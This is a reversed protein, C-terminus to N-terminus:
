EESFEVLMHRYCTFLNSKSVYGVYKGEDIVPLNWAGSTEFKEMVKDMSEDSSVYVSPLHMLNRVYVNDYMEENFMIHRINDLSVIGLLASDNDVVPFSNRKSLAVVKILERLSMDPLITTFDREILKDLRMLRLVWFPQKKRQKNYWDFFKGWGRM